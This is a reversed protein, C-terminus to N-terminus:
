AGFMALRVCCVLWWRQAARARRRNLRKLLIKGALRHFRKRALFFVESASLWVTRPEAAGLAFRFPHAPELERLIALLKSFEFTPSFSARFGIGVPEVRTCDCDCDDMKLRANKPLAFRSVSSRDGSPLFSEQAIAFLSKSAKRGWFLGAPEGRFVYRLTATFSEGFNEWQFIWYM